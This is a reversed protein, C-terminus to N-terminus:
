IPFALIISIKIKFPVKLARWKRVSYLKRGKCVAANTRPWSKKRSVYPRIVGRDCFTNYAVSYCGFAQSKGLMYVRDNFTKFYLQGKSRLKRNPFYLFHLEGAIYPVGTGFDFKIWELSLLSRSLFLEVFLLPKWSM